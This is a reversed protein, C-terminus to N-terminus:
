LVLWLPSYTVNVPGVNAHLIAAVWPLLGVSLRPVEHLTAFSSNLIAWPWLPKLCKSKKAPACSGARCAMSCGIQLADM